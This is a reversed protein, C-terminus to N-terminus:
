LLLSDGQPELDRLDALIFEYDPHNYEFTERVTKDNDIGIGKTYGAMEAGKSWGGGGCFLDLVKKM